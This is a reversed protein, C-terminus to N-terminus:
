IVFLQPDLISGQPVGLLFTAEAFTNEIIQFLFAGLYINLWFVFWNQAEHSIYLM